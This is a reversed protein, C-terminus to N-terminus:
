AGRRHLARWKWALMGVLCLFGIGGLVVPWGIWHGPKGPGESPENKKAPSPSAAGPSVGASSSPPAPPALAAPKEITPNVVLESLDVPGDARLVESLDDCEREHRESLTEYTEDFFDPPLGLRHIYGDVRAWIGMDACHSAKLPPKSADEIWVRDPDKGPNSEVADLLPDREPRFTMIERELAVLEEPTLPREFAFELESAADELLNRRWKELHSRLYEEAGPGALLQSLRIRMAQLIRDIQQEVAPSLDKARERAIARSVRKEFEYKFLEWGAPTRYYKVRGANGGLPNVWTMVYNDARTLLYREIDRSLKSRRDADRARSLFSEASRALDEVQDPSYFPSCERLLVARLREGFAGVDQINESAFPVALFAYSLFLIQRGRGGDPAMRPIM